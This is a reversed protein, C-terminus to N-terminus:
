IFKPQEASGALPSWFFYANLNTLSSPKFKLYSRLYYSTKESWPNKLAMNSMYEKCSHNIERAANNNHIIVWIVRTVTCAKSM